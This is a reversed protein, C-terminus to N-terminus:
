SNCDFLQTQLHFIQFSCFEGPYQKVTASIHLYFQVTFLNLIKFASFQLTPLNCCIDYISIKFKRITFIWFAETKMCREFMIM